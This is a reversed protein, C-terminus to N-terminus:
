NFSKNPSKERIESQKLPRATYIKNEIKMTYKKATKKKNHLLTYITLWFGFASNNNKNNNNKQKNKTITFIKERMKEDTKRTKGQFM